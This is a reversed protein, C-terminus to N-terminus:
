KEPNSYAAAAIIDGGAVLLFFLQAHSLDTDKLHKTKKKKRGGPNRKIIWIM